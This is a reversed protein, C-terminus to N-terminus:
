MFVSDGSCHHEWRACLLELLVKISINTKLQSEIDSLISATSIGDLIFTGRIRKQSANGFMLLVLGVSWRNVAEKSANQNQKMKKSVASEIFDLLLPVAAGCGIGSELFGSIKDALVPLGAEISDCALGPSGNSFDISWLLESPSADIVGSESWEIMSTRSLPIFAVPCCRSHVTPLLLDDRCTVLIVTTNNPPEELTKLLANQAQEDLLEAEDIIFVKKTGITPTKFAVSDHVKDDSTKGGIIRERLLDLPINTQKRRQLSPNTSWVVDEKKIVHIDPHLENSNTWSLISNAFQMAATCKGVGRPGSFIWAHHKKDAQLSSELTSIARKQGLISYVFSTYGGWILSTPLFFFKTFFFFVWLEHNQSFHVCLPTKICAVCSEMLGGFVSHDGSAVIPLMAHKPANKPVIFGGFLLNASKASHAVTNKEHALM